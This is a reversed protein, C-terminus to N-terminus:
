KITFEAEHMLESGWCWEEAHHITIYREMRKFLPWSTTDRFDASLKKGAFKKRLYLLAAVVLRPSSCALDVIENQTHILYGDEGLLRVVPAGECYETLDRWSNCSQLQRMEAPYHLRERRKIENLLGKKNKM